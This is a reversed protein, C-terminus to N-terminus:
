LVTPMMKYLRYDENYKYQCTEIESEIILIDCKGVGYQAEMIYKEPSVTFGLKVAEQIIEADDIACQTFM